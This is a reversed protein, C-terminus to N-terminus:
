QKHQYDASKLASWRQITGVLYCIGFVTCIISTVWMFVPRSTFEQFFEHRVFLAIFFGYLGRFLYVFTIACLGTRLLPLRRILGAGSWAYLALVFLLTTIISTVIAPYWEGREAMQAMAEGAGFFRYWDPGGIIVGAHLLAGIASFIGGVVLWKNPKNVTDTM